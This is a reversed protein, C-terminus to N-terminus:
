RKLGGWEVLTFGNRQFGFFTQPEIIRDPKNLLPEWDLFIRLVSNPRPSIKMPILKNLEKTQLFSLRYYPANKRQLEPLWYSIMDSKEKETLGLEFLKENLFNGLENNKVIWGKEPKEYTEGFIQGSWYLYPYENALCALKAYELGIEKNNIDNCDTLQPQLDQIRGDPYAMVDWNALYNPMVTSFEVPRIFSTKVETPETPYLYIVPKGCGGPILYEVEGLALWNGWPDKLLLVPNKSVYEDYNPVVIKNLEEFFDESQIVKNYYEAQNLLHNKEKLAYLNAGSKTTGIKILDTDSINKVIYTSDTAGCGGPLLTGYTKYLPIISAIESDVIFDGYSVYPEETSKSREYSEKSTILYTFILGSDDQALIYTRASLFQNTASELLKQGSTKEGEERGSSNISPVSEYYLRVGPIDSEIALDGPNIEYLDILQRILIFDGLEIIKPQKFNLDAFGIVKKNEIGSEELNLDLPFSMSNKDLLYSKYDNTAFIAIFYGTMSEASRAGLILQYGAYQGSSIIGADYYEYTPIFNNLKDSETARFLGLDQDIKKLPTSRENQNVPKAININQTNQSEPETKIWYFAVGAAVICIVVIAISLGFKIGGKGIFKNPEESLFPQNINSM